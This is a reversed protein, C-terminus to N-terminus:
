LLKKFKKIETNVDGKIVSSIKDSEVKKNKKKKLLNKLKITKSVLILKIKSLVM